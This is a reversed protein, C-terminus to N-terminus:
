VRRIAGTRSRYVIYPRWLYEIPISWVHVLRSFPWLAFLTFAALAHLRYVLPASAMLAPHPNLLFIDRFWISVTARYDYGSGMLNVGITESMGLVLVIALVIYVIVDMRTTARAVRRVTIRRYVLIAFGLVCAIGAAAGGSVSVIHYMQESVGLKATLSEPILLGMVHGAIVALAGYHFLISGWRLLKREYIQSSRSTWGFQDVRYRWWHGVVFISLCVYPFVIWLLVDTRTM